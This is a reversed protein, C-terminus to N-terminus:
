SYDEGIQPLAIQGSGQVVRRARRRVWGRLVFVDVMIGALLGGAAFKWIGQEAVLPISSWWGALFLSVPAVLGFVMGIVIAELRGVMVEGSFDGSWGM